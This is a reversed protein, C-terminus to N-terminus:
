RAIWSGAIPAVLRWVEAIGIIGMDNKVEGLGLHGTCFVGLRAWQELAEHGHGLRVPPRIMGVNCVCEVAQRLREVEKTIKRKRSCRGLSGQIDALSEQAWVMWIDSTTKELQSAHEFLLVLKAPVM